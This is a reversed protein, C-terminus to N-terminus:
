GGLTFTVSTERLWDELATHVKDPAGTPQDERLERWSETGEDRRDSRPEFM